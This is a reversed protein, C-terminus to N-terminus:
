VCALISLRPHFLTFVQMPGDRARSQTSKYNMEHGQHALFFLAFLLSFPPRFLLRLSISADDVEWFQWPRIESGATVFFNSWLNWISASFVFYNTCWITSHSCFERQLFPGASIYWWYKSSRLCEGFKSSPRCSGLFNSRLYMKQTHSESLTASMDVPAMVTYSNGYFLVKGKKNERKM